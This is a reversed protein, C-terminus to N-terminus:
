KITDSSELTSKLKKMEHRKLIENTKLQFVNSLFESIEELEFMDFDKLSYNFCKSEICLTLIDIVSSYFYENLDFLEFQDSSTHKKRFENYKQAVKTHISNDYDNIVEDINKLANDLVLSDIDTRLIFSIQKIIEFSPTVENNEYKQVMRESKHLESALQKQTMGIKKRAEKIKSGINIDM